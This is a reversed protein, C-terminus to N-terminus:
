RSQCPDNKAIRKGELFDIFGTGSMAEVVIDNNQPQLYFIFIM